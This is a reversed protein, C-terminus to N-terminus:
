PACPLSPPEITDGSSPRTSPSCTTPTCTVCSKENGDPSGASHEAMRETNPDRTGSTLEVLAGIPYIGICQIFQEVLAEVSEFRVEGRLREGGRGRVAQALETEVDPGLGGGRLGPDQEARRRYSREGDAPEMAALMAKGASVGAAPLVVGQRDGVRVPRHGEVSAMFRVDTGALVANRNATWGFPLGHADDIAYLLVALGAAIVGPHSLLRQRHSEIEPWLKEDILEAAPRRTGVCLALSRGAHTMAAAPIFLLEFM